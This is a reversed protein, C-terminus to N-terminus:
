VSAHLGSSIAASMEQVNQFRQGPDKRIAKEIVDYMWNPIGSDAPILPPPANLHMILTEAISNGVFPPHGVLTEFMICGLAYIDSRQDANLGQCQEPSMYLPSGFVEGSRTIRQENSELTKAFGFDVLKAVYEQDNETPALMINGPKLDRHVVGKGHAHGLGNCVQLMLPALEQWSLPGGQSIVEWLSMGQLFEMVMYAQADPSVGFDYVAVVNKHSLQSVAQAERKFRQVVKTDSAIHTQLVKIAVMKNMLLHKALYVTSMGGSGLPRVIEYRDSFVAGPRLSDAIRYIKGGDDPCVKLEVDDPFEKGCDLCVQKQQRTETVMRNSMSTVLEIAEHKETEVTEIRRLCWWLFFALAAFGAVATGINVTPADFLQNAEGINILWQRPLMLVLLLLLALCTRRLLTSALSDRTFVGAMGFTPKAFFVAYCIIAFTLSTIPSFKVCGFYACVHGLGFMYCCLIMLNPIFIILAIIQSPWYKGKVNLNIWALAIGLMMFYFGVDPLMPGPFSLPLAGATEWLPYAVGWDIRFTHDFFCAGGAIAVVIAVLAGLIVRWLRPSRFALLLFSIACLLFTLAAGPPTAPESAIPHKLSDIAFAWGTAELFGIFGVVCAAYVASAELVNALGVAIKQSFAQQENATIESM